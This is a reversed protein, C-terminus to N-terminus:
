SFNTSVYEFLGLADDLDRYAHLGGDSTEKTGHFELEIGGDFGVKMSECDPHCSYTMLTSM